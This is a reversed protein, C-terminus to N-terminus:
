ITMFEYCNRLVLDESCRGAISFCLLFKGMFLAPGWSIRLEKVCSWYSYKSNVTYFISCTESKSKPNRLYKWFWHFMPPSFSSYSPVSFWQLTTEHCSFHMENHRGSSFCLLHLGKEWLFDTSTKANVQTPDPNCGIFNSPCFIIYFLQHGPSADTTAIWCQM